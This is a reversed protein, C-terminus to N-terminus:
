QLFSTTKQLETEAISNKFSVGDDRRVKELWVWACAFGVLIGMGKKFSECSGIVMCLFEKLCETTSEQYLSGSTIAFAGDLELKM